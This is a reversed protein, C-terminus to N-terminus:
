FLFVSRCPCTYWIFGLGSVHVSKHYLKSREQKKRDFTTLIIDLLYGQGTCRERIAHCFHDFSDPGKDSLIDLFKERKKKPTTESEIDDSDVRDLVRKSRLYNIIKDERLKDVLLDRLEILVENKLSWYVESELASTPFSNAAMNNFTDTWPLSVSSVSTFYNVTFLSDATHDYRLSLIPVLIASQAPPNCNQQHQSIPKGFRVGSSSYRRLFNAKSFFFTFYRKIQEKYQKRSLNSSM